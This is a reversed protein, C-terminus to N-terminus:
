GMCSSKLSAMQRCELMLFIRSQQPHQGGTCSTLVLSDSGRRVDKACLGEGDREDLERCDDAHSEPPAQSWHETTLALTDVAGSLGAIGAHVSENGIAQWLANDGPLRKRGVKRGPLGILQIFSRTTHQRSFSAERRSASSQRSHSELM